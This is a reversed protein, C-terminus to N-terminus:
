RGRVMVWGARWAPLSFIFATVPLLASIPRMQLTGHLYGELIFDEEFAPQVKLRSSFWSNLVLVLPIMLGILMGTYYDDVLSIRIDSELDRIKTGAALRRILLWIGSGFGRVQFVSYIRSLSSPRHKKKEETRVKKVKTKPGKLEWCFLHFFYFVRLRVDVRGHFTAIVEVSVPLVLVLTVILLLILCVVLFAL